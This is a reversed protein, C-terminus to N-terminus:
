GWLIVVNPNSAISGLINISQSPTSQAWEYGNGPLLTFSSTTAAQGFAIYITGTASNNQINLYHLNVNAALIQASTNTITTNVQNFPTIVPGVNVINGNADVVIVRRLKILDVLKNAM